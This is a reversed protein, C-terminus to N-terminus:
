PSKENEAQSTHGQKFKRIAKDPDLGEERAWRTVSSGDAFRVTNSRNSAQQHWDAWVCNDPSYGKNNDVRELTLGASYTGEMDAIFAAASNLWRPDVTVGRGGYRSYAPHAPNTCRQKMNSWLLGLAKQTSSRASRKEARLCGCSRTKGSRLKDMRVVVETGCLCKCTCATGDKKLVTLRGYTEGVMYVPSPM